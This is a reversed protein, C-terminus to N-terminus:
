NYTTIIITLVLRFHTAIAKLRKSYYLPVWCRTGPNNESLTYNNYTTGAMTVNYNHLIWWFQKVIMRLSFFIIINFLEMGLGFLIRDSCQYLITFLDLSEHENKQKMSWRAQPCTVSMMELNLRSYNAPTAPYFELSFREGHAHHTKAIITIRYM